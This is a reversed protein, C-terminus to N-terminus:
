LTNIGNRSSHSERAVDTKHSSHFGIALKPYLTHLTYITFIHISTTQQIYSFSRQRDNFAQSLSPYISLNSHTNNNNNNVNATADLLYFFYYVLQYLVYPLNEDDKTSILYSQFIRWVLRQTNLRPFIKLPHRLLLFYM